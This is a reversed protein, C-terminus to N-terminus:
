LPHAQEPDFAPLDAMPYKYHFSAKGGTFAGGSHKACMHFHQRVEELLASSPQAKGYVRALTTQKLTEYGLTTAHRLFEDHQQQHYAALPEMQIIVANFIGVPEKGTTKSYLFGEGTADKKILINGTLNQIGAAAAASDVAGSVTELVADRNPGTILKQTWANNDAPSPDFGHLALGDYFPDSAPHHHQYTATYM